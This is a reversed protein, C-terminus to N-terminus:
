SEDRIEIAQEIFEDLNNKNKWVPSLKDLLNIHRTYPKVDFPFARQWEDERLILVNLVESIDYIVESSLDIDEGFTNYLHHCFLEHLLEHAIVACSDSVVMQVPFAVLHKQPDRAVLPWITPYCVYTENPFDNETFYQKALHAFVEEQLHWLREIENTINVLNEKNSVHHTKVQTSIEIDDKPAIFETWDILNLYHKIQQYVAIDLEPDIKFITNIIKSM